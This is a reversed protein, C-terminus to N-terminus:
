LKAALAEEAQTNPEVELVQSRYSMNLLLSPVIVNSEPLCAELQEILDNTQEMSTLVVCSYDNCDVLHSVVPVGFYELKSYGPQYVGVVEIPSQTSRMMAIETLDSIGAFLVRKQGRAACDEFINTYVDGSQRFLALSTSFFDATLRAKEAFGNPTLYYLYRNAPATTIKILGKKVCRKLYSNALGLAVGMGQALDRQSIDDKQDIAQLLELTLQSEKNALSKQSQTNM